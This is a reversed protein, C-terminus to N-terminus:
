GPKPIMIRTLQKKQNKNLHLRRNENLLKIAPFSFDIFPLIFIEENNQYKTNTLSCGGVRRSCNIGLVASTSLTVNRLPIYKQQLFKFDIM